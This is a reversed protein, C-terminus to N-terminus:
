DAELPEQQEDKEDAKPWIQEGTELDHLIIADSPCSKAAEIIVEPWNGAADKVIIKDEDDLEFTDPAIDVCLGDGFCEDRDIEIRFKTM